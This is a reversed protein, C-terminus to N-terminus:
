DKLEIHAFRQKGSMDQRLEVSHVSRTEQLIGLMRAICQEAYRPNLELHISGGPKLRQRSQAIQAIQDYYITPAQAPAFLAMEPEWDLVSASMEEAESPHIYPPNSVLVDYAGIAKAWDDLCFIDQELIRINTHESCIRSANGRAVSLAEPSLDIGVVECSRKQGVLQALAIAICGSGTGIDLVRLKDSGPRKRIIQEVQLVLEETEPRPILVGEDLEIRHGLFYTYGLVYQLPKGRQLDQMCQALRMRVDSSLLTDKDLLLLETRSLALYDELLIYVISRAEAEEYLQLLLATAQTIFDKVTLM